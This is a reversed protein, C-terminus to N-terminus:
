RRRLHGGHPQHLHRLPRKRGGTRRPSRHLQGAADATAQGLYVEGGGHGSPDFGAETRYFEVLADAPATGTVYTNGGVVPFEAAAFEPFNFAM